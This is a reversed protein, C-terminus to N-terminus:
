GDKRLEDVDVGGQRLLSEIDAGPGPRGFFFGQAERCGHDILFQRQTATEVGEAIIGLGLNDGLGIIAKVITEAQSEEPHGSGIEALFSRDIKLTQVPLRNLYSLSAYGTGFDDIALKFGSDHL